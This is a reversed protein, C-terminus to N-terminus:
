ACVLAGATDYMVLLVKYGEYKEQCEGYRKPAGHIHGDYKAARLARPPPTRLLSGTDGRGAGAAALLAM